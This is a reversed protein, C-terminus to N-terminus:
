KSEEEKVAKIIEDVFEDVLVDLEEPFSNDRGVVHNQLIFKLTSAAKRQYSPM